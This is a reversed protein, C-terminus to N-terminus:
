AVSAERTAMTGYTQDNAGDDLIRTVWAGLGAADTAKAFPCGAAAAAEGDRDDDGVFWVRSLDLDFDRQAQLLMGPKPKRCACGDDWHHPCCYIADINAGAEAAERRMRDHIGALDADSLMGRAIGAQNTIVISRYGAATRRRLAPIADPQWRWDAWSTVYTGRPPRENLVGDRDLLIAPRRALFRETAPLRAPTGVSYYRHGTLYATLRGQAALQPYIAQEFSCNDGPLYELVCRRVIAFGIDVGALGSSTRSKDYRVVHGDDSLSLNDRTYADANDYATIQVDAARSRFAEWMAAFPMPWYNDCYLLLFVDDTLARAKRLRTGTDDAEPGHAYSLSLGHAGAGFHARIQDGRYGTLILAREFGQESLQELLYDLFPRGHFPVMPKPMTDTLPALRTGRGGALIVAQRPPGANRDTTTATM